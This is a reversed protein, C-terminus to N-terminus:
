QQPPYPSGVGYGQHQPQGYQQQDYGGQYGGSHQYQGQQQNYGGQSQDSYGGGGYYGENSM